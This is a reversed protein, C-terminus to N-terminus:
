RFVNGSEDVMMISSSVVDRVLSTCWVWEVGGASEMYVSGNNCIETIVVELGQVADGPRLQNIDLSDTTQQKDRTANLEMIEHAGAGSLLRFRKAVM